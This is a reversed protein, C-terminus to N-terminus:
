GDDRGRVVGRIAQHEGERLWFGILAGLIVDGSGDRVAVGYALLAISIAAKALLQVTQLDM